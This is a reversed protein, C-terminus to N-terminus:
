GSPWVADPALGVSGENTEATASPAPSEPLTAPSEPLTASARALTAPVRARPLTAPARPLAAPARARPLMARPRPLTAPADTLTAPAEALLDFQDEHTTVTLRGGINELRAALNELGGGPRGTAANGRVGDNLMRLVIVDGEQRVEISCARVDSHRLMNNVSERVVTALVTDVPEDLPGCCIEVRADIGVTTLLSAVAAAEKNLSINRYGSSVTRVDALAQRAIDILEAIEDRSRGPDASVLRRALEAKLTIASLSYGLLDHLDRSFRVRERVVALQALEDRAAHVYSIVQSLRSLGFVFLGVAITSVTVYVVSYASLGFAVSLGAMSAVVGTYLVGAARGPVLLLVSGALFGAIGMWTEGIVILPRYTAAAQAALMGWRRWAPWRGAAASSNFLQLTFLAALAPFGVGLSHGQSRPPSTVMEIAVVAIYGSLAALLTLRAVRIGSVEGTAAPAPAVSGPDRVASDEPNGAALWETQSDRSRM